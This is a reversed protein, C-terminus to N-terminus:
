IIKIITNTDKMETIAIIFNKEGIPHNSLSDSDKHPPVTVSEM